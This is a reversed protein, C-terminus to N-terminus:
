FEFPKKSVFQSLKERQILNKFDPKVAEFILLFDIQACDAIVAPLMCIGLAPLTVNIMQKFIRAIVNSYAMRFDESLYNVLFILVNGIAKVHNSSGVGAYGYLDILLSISIVGTSKSVQGKRCADWLKKATPMETQERSV